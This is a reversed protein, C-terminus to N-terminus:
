SNLEEDLLVLLRNRASELTNTYVDIRNARQALGELGLGNALWFSFDNTRLHLRLRSALFHYYFSATNLHEIGLRFEALTRAEFGTPVTVEISECFYFPEFAPQKAWEPHTGCAGTAVKHLDRRLDPLSLYDRIDLAALAEALQPRNCAALVWQAFDNSFGETLFHHRSLSQFTHCFISADSCTELGDCLEALNTAKQEGVRTLYSASVFQFTAEATTM